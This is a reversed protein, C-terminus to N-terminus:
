ESRTPGSYESCALLDGDHISAAVRTEGVPFIAGYSNDGVGYEFVVFARSGAREALSMRRVEQQDVRAIAESVTQVDSHSSQQVSLVLQARELDSALESDEHIWRESEVVINEGSRLDAFQEGFLCSEGASVCLEGVCHLSLAFAGRTHASLGRV